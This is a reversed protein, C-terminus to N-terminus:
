FVKDELRLQVKKGSLFLLFRDVVEMEWNMSPKSFFLNSYWSGCCVCDRGGGGGGGRLGLQCM